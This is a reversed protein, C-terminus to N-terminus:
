VPAMCLTWHNLPGGTGDYLDVVKGLLEGTGAKSVSMGLLDQM